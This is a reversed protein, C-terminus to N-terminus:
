KFSFIIMFIMCKKIDELNIRPDEQSIEEEEEEESGIKELFKRCLNKM